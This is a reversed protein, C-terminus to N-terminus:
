PTKTGTIGVLVRDVEKKYPICLATIVEDNLIKDYAALKGQEICQSYGQSAQTYHAQASATEGFNQNVHGEYFYVNGLAQYAQATLRIEQSGKIAPLALTINAEAGLFSHTASPWDSVALQDAGQLLQATALSLQAKPGILAGAAGNAGEVAKQYEAAAKALGADRQANGPAMQQARALFASGLGIHARAYAPNIKLAQEFSAQAQDYTGLYLAERGMFFWFVEENEIKGGPAVVAQFEKLALDNKGIFDYLVGISLHSVSNVMADLQNKVSFAAVPDNLSGLLQAPIGRGPYSGIIEDVDLRMAPSSCIATEPSFSGNSGVAPLNGYIILNANIRVSLQCAAQNRATTNAGPIIGLTVRKTVEPGDYWVQPDLNQRTAAPLNDLENKLSDYVQKSLNKATNSSRGEGQADAQGFEAVAVNFVGAMKQPKKLESALLVGGVGALLVVVLIIVPLVPIVLTGIQIINKGVAV